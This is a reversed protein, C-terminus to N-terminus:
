RTRATCKPTLSTKLSNAERRSSKRRQITSLASSTAQGKLMCHLARHHAAPPAPRCSTIACNRSGRQISNAASGDEHIRLASQGSTLGFITGILSAVDNELQQQMMDSTFFHLHLTLQNFIFSTTGKTPSLQSAAQNASSVLCHHSTIRSHRCFAQNALLDLLSSSTVCCM